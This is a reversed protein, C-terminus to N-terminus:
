RIFTGNTVKRTNSVTSIVIKTGKKSNIIAEIAEQTLTKGKGSIVKGDYNLIWSEIYLNSNGGKDALKLNLNTTKITQGDCSNGLYLVIKTSDLEESNITKQSVLENHSYSIASFNLSTLILLLINIKKM